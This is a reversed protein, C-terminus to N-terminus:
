RTNNNEILQVEIRPYEKDVKVDHRLQNIYKQSDDIIIGQKVLADQIFTTAFTINDVDRRKNKEYCKINIKINYKKIKKLHYIKIAEIVISENKLKMQSGKYRNSRNASTYENLGDLRGYIIFEAM